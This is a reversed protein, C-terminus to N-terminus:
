IIWNGVGLNEAIHTRHAANPEASESNVITVRMTPIKSSRVGFIAAKSALAIGVTGLSIAARHYIVHM